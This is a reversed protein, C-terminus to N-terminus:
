KSGVVAKEPIHIEQLTLRNRNKKAAYIRAGSVVIESNRPFNVTWSDKESPGWFGLQDDEPRLGFTRKNNERYGSMDELVFYGNGYAIVHVFSARGNTTAHWKEKGTAADLRVFFLDPAVIAIENLIPNYAPESWAWVDGYKWLQRGEPSLMYVADGVTLIMRGDPLVLPRVKRHPSGPDEKGQLVVSPISSKNQKQQSWALVVLCCLSVVLLASKM